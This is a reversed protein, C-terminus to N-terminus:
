GTAPPAGGRLAKAPKNAKVAKKAPKVEPGNYIGPHPGLGAKHTFAAWMHDKLEDPMADFEEEEEEEEEQPSCEPHM